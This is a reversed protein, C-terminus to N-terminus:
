HQERRRALCQATWAAVLGGITYWAVTMVQNALRHSNPPEGLGVRQPVTLCCLGALLGLAAGRSWTTACAYYVSNAVLDGALAATYLTRDATPDVDGSDDAIGTRGTGRALARVGLVDMRPAADTLRLAAQHVATLAVAGAVGSILSENLRTASVM